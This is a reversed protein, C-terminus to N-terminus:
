PSAADGDDKESEFGTMAFWKDESGALIMVIPAVCPNPLDVQARIFSNGQMDAPFGDTVVNATEVADGVETLCSVLARFEAEDNTGVLEPPVSPDDAFVLGRVFVTLRGRNDLEGRAFGTIEWPLEDGPVDRVANADGVFPGDVGYMTHFSLITKRGHRNNDQQDSDAALCTGAFALSLAIVWMSKNM